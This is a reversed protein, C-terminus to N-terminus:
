SNLNRGHKSNRSYNAASSTEDEKKSDAANVAVFSVSDPNHHEDNSQNQVAHLAGDAEADGGDAEADGGDAAGAPNGKAARRTGNSEGKRTEKSEGTRTSHTAQRTTATTAAAFSSSTAAATASPAATASNTAAATATAAANSTTAKFAAANAAAADAAAANAQRIATAYPERLNKKRPMVDLLQPMSDWPMVRKRSVVGVGGSGFFRVSVRVRQASPQAQAGRRSQKCAYPQVVAPWWDHGSVKAWVVARPQLQKTVVPRPPPAHPAEYRLDQATDQPQEHQRGQPHIRQGHARADGYCARSQARPQEQAQANQLRDPISSRTASRARERSSATGPAIASVAAAGLAQNLVQRRFEKEAGKEGGNEEDREAVKVAEGEVDKETDKEDSVAGLQGGATGQPGVGSNPEAEAEAEAM